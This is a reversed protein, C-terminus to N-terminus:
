PIEPLGFQAREEPTLQRTVCCDYAHAILEEPTHWVRKIVPENFGDGTVIIQRGDPSWRHGMPAGPLQFNFLEEGNEVRWIKVLQESFDSTAILTGDPSWEGGM